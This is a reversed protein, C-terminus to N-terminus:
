RDIGAKPTTIPDTAAAGTASLAAPDATQAAPATVPEEADGATRDAPRRQGRRFYRRMGAIDRLDRRFTPWVLATLGTAALVAAVGVVLRLAHADAPLAVTSLYSLASAASFVLGTRLGNRFMRGAPADSIRAIWLLAVPWVLAAGVAYGAAVGQLGWISGVVILVAVVPRTVLAYVFQSRTLGKALFVWSTAYTAAQFFGAVLLVRFIPVAETWQSGLMVRVVSPAQAFLAAFLGGILTLLAVQGFSIFEAFRKKDDQLRSLVPLAVRTSPAQVQLLPMMVLQFARNYIGVSAVGFRAGLVLTDMNRGLYNLLHSGLLPLGYGLFPRVSARRDVWGPLWRNTAVLFVQAVLGQTLQQAVLAWYGAGLVALVIGVTVGAVQGGIESLALKGFRLHRTHMARYQTSVGNLLFTASMVVAVLTLRDDDFALAILPSVACVLGALVAGIGTNLWFLNDRQGDSLTKAQVAASSLGFDRFLEGFGVILAVIAVLGYDEPDLLRALVVIGVLQVLVRLGQGGLTVAAGRSAAAALGPQRATSAEPDATM